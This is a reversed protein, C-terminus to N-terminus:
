VKDAPQTTTASASETDVSVAAPTAPVDKSPTRSSMRGLYFAGLVVFLMVPIGIGLSLGLTDGASAGESTLAASDADKTVILSGM